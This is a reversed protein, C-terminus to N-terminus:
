MFYQTKGNTKYDAWEEFSIRKDEFEVGAHKYLLRVIEGRGPIGFYLLQPKGSM